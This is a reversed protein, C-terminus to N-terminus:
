SRMCVAPHVSAWRMLFQRKARPHRVKEICWHGPPGRAGQGRKPEPSRLLPNLASALPWLRAKSLLLCWCFYRNRLPSDCKRLARAEQTAGARRNMHLVGLCCTLILLLLGCVLCQPWSAAVFTAMGFPLTTIKLGAVEQPEWGWTHLFWTNKCYFRGELDWFHLCFARNRLPWVADPQGAPQRSAGGASALVGGRLASAPARLVVMTNKRHFNAEPALVM